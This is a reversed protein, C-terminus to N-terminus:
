SPVLRNLPKKLKPAEAPMQCVIEVIQMETDSANFMVAAEGWAIEFSDGVLVPRTRTPTKLLGSGEAVTLLRYSKDDGSFPLSSGPRIRMMRLEYGNGKQVRHVEGWPQQDRVHHSIERRQNLELKKVLQKVENSQDRTTVLLADDTDVIILNEMGIVTVLKGSSRIYSARTGICVVDGNLVNDDGDKDAIQHLANWAGVDSWAVNLPSVVTLPSKEFIISETPLNAAPALSDADLHTVGDLRIAMAVSMEVAEFTKPDLRKFESILVDARFLSIGSAWLANGDKILAFAADVHPKEVFKNVAYADAQGDLREGRVIYGFGSEPYEPRIGFLVIKGTLALYRMSLISGALDGKVIHDSPLVCILSSPDTEALRIAAALAAPGTNRSIPEAIIQAPCSLDDLQRRVTGVHASSVAVIPDFFDPRRHREVTSQFFTMQSGADIRQFQKPHETRSLPWLRTGIGGCLILPHINQMNVGRQPTANQRKTENSMM